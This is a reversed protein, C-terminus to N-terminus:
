SSRKRSRLFGRKKPPEQPAEEVTDHRIIVPEIAVAQGPSVFTYPLRAVLWRAGSRDVVKWAPDRSFSAAVGQTKQAIAERVNEQSEAETEGAPLLYEVILNPM